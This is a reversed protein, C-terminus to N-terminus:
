IKMRIYLANQGIESVGCIMQAMVDNEHNRTLNQKKGHIVVDDLESKENWKYYYKIPFKLAYDALCNLSDHVPKDAYLPSVDVQKKGPWIQNLKKKLADIAPNGTVPDVPLENMKVIFHSHVLIYKEDIGIKTGNMKALTQGKVPHLNVLLGNVAELEFAGFFAIQRNFSRRVAKFKTRAENIASKIKATPFRIITDDPQDFPVLQHLVTIFFLNERAKAENNKYPSWLFEDFRKRQSTFMTRQCQDCYPSRCRKSPKCEAMKKAQEVYSHELLASQILTTNRLYVPGGSMAEFMANRMTWFSRPPYKLKLRDILKM